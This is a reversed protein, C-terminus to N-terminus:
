GISHVHCVQCKCETGEGTHLALQADSQRLLRDYHRQRMCYKQVPVTSIPRIQRRPQLLARLSHLHRVALAGGPIHEKGCQELMSGHHTFSM